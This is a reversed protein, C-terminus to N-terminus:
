GSRKERGQKHRHSHHHKLLHHAHHRDDSSVEGCPKEELDYRHGGHSLSQLYADSNLHLHLALRILWAEEEPHAAVLATEVGAEDLPRRHKLVDHGAELQLLLEKARKHRQDGTTPKDKRGM